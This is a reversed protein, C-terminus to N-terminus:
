AIPERSGSGPIWPAEWLFVRASVLWWAFRAPRSRGGGPQSLTEGARVLAQSWALWQRSGLTAVYARWLDLWRGDLMWMRWHRLSATPSSVERPIASWSAGHRLVWLVGELARRKQEVLRPGANEGQLVLPALRSWQRDNLLQRRLRRM